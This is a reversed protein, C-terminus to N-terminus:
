VPHNSVGKCHRPELTGGPTTDEEGGEDRSAEEGEFSPYSLSPSFMMALLLGAVALTKIGTM